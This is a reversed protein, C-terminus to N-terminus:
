RPTRRGCDGNYPWPYPQDPRVERHHDRRGAGDHWPRHHTGDFNVIMGEGM